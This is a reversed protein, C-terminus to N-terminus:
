ETYSFHGRDKGGRFHFPLLEYMISFCLNGFVKNLHQKFPTRCSATGAAEPVTNQPTETQPQKPFNSTLPGTALSVALLNM